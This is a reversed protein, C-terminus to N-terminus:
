CNKVFIHKFITSLISHIHYIIYAHYICTHHFPLRTPSLIWHLHSRTPELGVVQVMVAYFSAFVQTRKTNKANTAYRGHKM